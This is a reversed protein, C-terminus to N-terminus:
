EIGKSEKLSGQFIQYNRFSCELDGNFLRIKKDPKLGISKFGTESSSLVWCSKGQMEHKMWTGLESYLEEINEQMREGYPPNTVMVGQRDQFKLEKFDSVQTEVFRGISLRRLNRRAKIVMEDSIDSGLIKCPLAKVRLNAQEWLSEWLQADYNKFNKFAYHQREITSPIGAAMLAAEILITGSGCFPDILDSKKDWGSMRLLAAAVVENLPAEGTAERYGRQFLPAGSTNLSVTVKSDSIHLDFLLQPTKINVDPRQGLKKRFTDVIADKVLLFPYQSHKFVDTFVAGKVAFTKDVSFYETWDIKMCNQYLDAEKRIEFSAIEVLVTLACRLHLNLRYVDEWGSLTVQVARNLKVADPYGLEKLEDILVEELGFFTKITVRMGQEKKAM